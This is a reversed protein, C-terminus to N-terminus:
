LKVAWEVPVGQGIYQAAVDVAHQVLDGYTGTWKVAYVALLKPVGEADIDTHDQPETLLLGARELRGGVQLRARYLRNGFGPVHVAPGSQVITCGAPAM